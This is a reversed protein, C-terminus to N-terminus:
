FNFLNEEIAQESDWTQVSDPDYKVKKAKIPSSTGSSFKRKKMKKNSAEKGMKIQDELEVCHELYKKDNKLKKKKERIPTPEAASTEIDIHLRKAIQSPVKVLKKYHVGFLPHRCKTDPLPIFNTQDNDNIENHSIHIKPVKNRLTICGNSKLTKIIPKSQNNFTLIPLRQDSSEVVQEFVKGDIKLKKKNSLSLTSGKFQMIDIDHPCKLLWVDDNDTIISDFKTKSSLPQLNTNKKLYHRVKKQKKKANENTAETYVHSRNLDEEFQIRDSVISLNQNEKSIESIEIEDNSGNDFNSKDIVNNEDVCEMNSDNFNDDAIETKYCDRVFSKCKKKKKVHYGDETASTLNGSNTYSKTIVIEKTTIKDEITVNNSLDENQSCSLDPSSEDIQESNTISDKRKKKKKKKKTQMDSVDFCSLQEEKVMLNLYSDNCDEDHFYPTKDHEYKVIKTDVDSVPEEKISNKNSDEDKVTENVSKNKIKKKVNGDTLETKMEYSRFFINLLKSIISM